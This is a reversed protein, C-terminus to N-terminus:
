FLDESRMGMAMETSSTVQLLASCFAKQAPICHTIFKLDYRCSLNDLHTNNKWIVQNKRM